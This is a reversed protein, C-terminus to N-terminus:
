GFCRYRAFARSALSIKWFSTWPMAPNWIRSYRASRCGRASLSRREASPGHARRVFNFDHRTETTPSLRTRFRPGITPTIPLICAPPSVSRPQILQELARITPVVRRRGPAVPGAHRSDIEGSVQRDPRLGGYVAQGAPRFERGIVRWLRLGGSSAACRTPRWLSQEHDPVAGLRRSRGRCPLGSTPTEVAVLGLISFSRPSSWRGFTRGLPM